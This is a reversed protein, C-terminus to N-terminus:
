NVVDRTGNQRGPPNEIKGALNLSKILKTKTTKKINEIGGSNGVCNRSVYVIRFPIYLFDFFTLISFAGFFMTFEGCLSPCISLARTEGM